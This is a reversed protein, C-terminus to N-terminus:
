CTTEEIGEALEPIGEGGGGGVPLIGGGGGGGGNICFPLLLECANSGLSPRIANSPSIDFKLM